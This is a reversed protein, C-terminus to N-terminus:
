PLSATGELVPYVMQVRDSTLGPGPPALTRCSYLEMDSLEGAVQVLDALRLGQRALFALYTHRLAAADVERARPVAGYVAVAAVAEDLEKPSHTRGQENSWLLPRCDDDGSEARASWLTHLLRAMPVDRSGNVRIRNHQLDIDSWRLRTAEAATLGSLLTAILARKADDAAVLMTEVEDPSLERMRAQVLAQPNRMPSLLPAGPAADLVTRSGAVFYPMPPAPTQGRGSRRETLFEWIWIAVLGLALAVAVSIGADVAYDPRIPRGPVSAPELVRVAPLYGVHGAQAQIQQQQVARHMSQLQDLEDRMARYEALRASFAAARTKSERYQARLQTTVRTASVLAQKADSVAALQSNRRARKLEQEIDALRKRMSAADSDLAMYDPTFRQRLDSIQQRLTIASQRLSDLGPQDQARVQPEGRAIAQRLSTLRAAAIARIEDAKDLSASLGKLRALSRNEAREASVIGYERRYQDLRSRLVSVRQGISKARRLLDAGTADADRIRSVAYAHLYVDVWRALIATLLPPSSGEAHLEVLNAGKVPVVSLMAQLDPLTEPMGTSQPMSKRLDHFLSAIISQGIIMRSQLIASDDTAPVSVGGNSTAGTLDPVIALLATSRYVAPRAFTYVLGITAAVVFVLLFIRVRRYGRVAGVPTVDTEPGSGSTPSLLVQVQSNTMAVPGPVM